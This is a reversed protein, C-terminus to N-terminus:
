AVRLSKGYDGKEFLVDALTHLVAAKMSADGVEDALKEAEEAIRVAKAPNKLTSQLRAITRLLTLRRTKSGVDKLKEAAKEAAILAEQHDSRALCALVMSELAAVEGKM